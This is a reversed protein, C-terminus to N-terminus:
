LSPHWILIICLSSPMMPATLMILNVSISSLVCHSWIATNKEINPWQSCHFNAWFYLINALTPECNQWISFLQELFPWFKKFNQSLPSIKGCRTVIIPYSDTYKPIDIQSSLTILTVLNPSKQFNRTFFIRVFTAM